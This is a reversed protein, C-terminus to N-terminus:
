VCQDNSCIEMNTRAKNNTIFKIFNTKRFNYTLKNAIFCKNMIILHSVMHFSVVTYFSNIHPLLNNFICSYILAAMNPPDRTVVVHHMRLNHISPLGGHVSPQQSYISYATASLRCPTTKWSPPQAHPQFGRV